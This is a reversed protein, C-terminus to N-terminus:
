SENSQAATLCARLFADVLPANRGSLAAREPQFLTAVFFPHGQLEMCRVDGEPGRGSVKLAGGFLSSELERRLGYRCHYREEIDLTRYAQAILTDPQLHIPALADVLSCDLPEIIVNAAGPSTEGHEADAWGLGNRAYEVLAHQFGGCSGLFPLRRERAFRIATLAGQMQLYPSGPVCWLGDFRGLGSGDGIQPTPLWEIDVQVQLVDAAMQLALPTARHAPVEAIFDGVLGIHISIVAKAAVGMGQERDM